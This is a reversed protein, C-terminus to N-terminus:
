KAGGRNQNARSHHTRHATGRHRKTRRVCRVKGKRAVRRKGQPCRRRAGRPKFNGKGHFSASSPTLDNPAIAPPQCAEGQCESRAVETESAFGGGERAVYLDILDDEDKLVLQDRTTFFVSKGSADAAILNSDVPERGASILTVCGGDKTCSGVGQPEYQYVDEVGNNTDLASLSDRSDFYVRGSDSVLHPPTLYGGGENTTPLYSRGMAIAGVPNCSICKLSDSDADYVYVEQCPGEVLKSNNFVCIGTNDADTLPAASLFTLVRGNPSAQATRQIPAPSWDGVATANTESDGPLLAAIFRSSGDQWAYLNNEGAEAQDGHANPAEDLVSTSVFYLRSLDETQGALGAFGGEGETLDTTTESDLDYVSGSSLLVKSGDASASLFQGPAPIERTTEANERVYVQGGADRWFVRSGDSSIAHSLIAAHYQSAKLAGFAAGPPAAANGPAVNVLRLEGESWEYLNDNNVGGDQAAPAAGTADTLADNAAFFVRSLDASAGAYKVVFGNTGESSRNPPTAKLLPDLSLPSGTPQTLLNDYDLPAEPALTPSNLRIIAKNLDPDLAFSAFPVGGRSAPLGLGNSQWGSATRRALNQDFETPGENLRFPQSMYAVSDGDPSVQVPFRVPVALGPKCEPGCSARFPEPTIVEGGNKQTPSVLEYVRGDPLEAVEVPFTRFAQDPGPTTGQESTAIARYHYETGPSLGSLPEAALLPLQGSGLEAGGLPVETAGAFRESPENAEWSERDIYQFAYSTPSGKPNIYARLTASTSRINVVSESDVVPLFSPPRAFIYGLSSQKPDGGLPSSGNPAAGYLVGPPSFTEFKGEPNFTLGWLTDREPTAKFPPETETFKGESNCPNLLHVKRDVTSYYFVEGTVPNVTHAAIGSKVTFLCVPVSRSVTLDYKAIFGDGAAYVNGADDLVPARPSPTGSFTGGIDNEKGAYVYHEYDGPTEPKFVLLRRYFDSPNDEDFVYVEGADNVAIGGPSSSHIRDPGETATEGFKGTLGFRSIMESGDPNFVTITLIGEGGELNFHYVNGTSQDIDVDNLGSGKNPRPECPPFGPVIPGCRNNLSFREEFTGDPAFRVVAPPEGGGPVSAYLTGKPVGGAGTRNVAMGSVGGLQVEEPWEEGEPKPTLIGAFNDVTEYTTAAAASTASLGLLFAVVVLCRVLLALNKKASTQTMTDEDRYNM